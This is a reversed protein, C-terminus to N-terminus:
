NGIKFATDGKVASALGVERATRKKRAEAQEVAYTFCDKM